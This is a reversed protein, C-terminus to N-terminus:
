KKMLRKFKSLAKKAERFDILTTTDMVNQGMVDVEKEALDYIHAFLEREEESFRKENSGQKGKSKRKCQPCLVSDVRTVRWGERKAEDALTYDDIGHGGTEKGCGDCTITCEVADVLEM